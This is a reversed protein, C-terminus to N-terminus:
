KRPTHCRRCCVSQRTCCCPISPACWNDGYVAILLKGPKINPAEREALKDLRRFLAAEPVGGLDMVSPAPGVECTKCHLFYLGSVTQKKVKFCEEQM